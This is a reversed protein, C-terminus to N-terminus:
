FQVVLGLQNSLAWSKREVLGSSVGWLADHKIQDIRLQIPWEIAISYDSDSKASRLSRSLKAELDLTYGKPSKLEISPTSSGITLPLGALASLELGTPRRTNFHFTKTMGAMLSLSSGKELEITGANNRFLPFERLSPGFKFMHYRALMTAEYTTVSGQSQISSFKLNSRQVDLDLGFSDLSFRSRVSLLSPRFINVNASGLAGSQDHAYYQIGSYVGIEWQSESTMAVQPSQKTIPSQNSIDEPPLDFTLEKKPETFTEDLTTKDRVSVKSSDSIRLQQGVVIINPNTIEPNLNLLRNIGGELTYIPLNPFFRKALHSLTDGPRVLYDTAMATHHWFILFILYLAKFNKM